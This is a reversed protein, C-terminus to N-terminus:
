PRSRCRGAADAVLRRNETEVDEHRLVVPVEERETRVMKHPHTRGAEVLHKGLQLEKEHLRLREEETGFDPAGM